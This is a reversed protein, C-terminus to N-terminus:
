DTDDILLENTEFENDDDAEELSGSPCDAEDLDAFPDSDDDAALMEATLRAIVSAAEAAVGGPKLCHISGDESGDVPVGIGCAEFSKIVVETSLAEWAKVVWKLCTLKDPARMNGASTLSHEGSAM